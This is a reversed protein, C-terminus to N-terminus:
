EFLYDYLGSVVSNLFLCWFLGICLWLCVISGVFCTLWFVFYVVIGLLWLLTYRASLLMVVSNYRLWLCEHWVVWLFLCVANSGFKGVFVLCYDFLICYVGLVWGLVMVVLGLWILIWDVAVCHAFLCWM